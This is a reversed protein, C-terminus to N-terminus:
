QATVESIAEGPATAQASVLLNTDAEVTFPGKYEITPKAKVKDDASGVCYIIRAFPNEHELTIEYSGVIETIGFDADAESLDGKHAAAAITPAATCEIDFTKNVTGPFHGPCIAIVSLTRLGNRNTLVPVTPGLVRTCGGGVVATKNWSYYMKASPFGEPKDVRVHLGSSEDGEADSLKPLPLQPVDIKMELRVPVRKPQTVLLSLTRAGGRETNVQIVDDTCETSTVTAPIPGDFEDWVYFVRVGNGMQGDFVKYATTAGTPKDLVPIMRPPPAQSVVHQVVASRTCWVTQARATVVGHETLVVPDTYPLWGDTSSQLKWEFTYTDTDADPVDDRAAVTM